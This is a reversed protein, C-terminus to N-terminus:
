FSPKNVEFTLLSQPHMDYVTVSHISAGPVIPQAAKCAVSRRSTEAPVLRCPGPM